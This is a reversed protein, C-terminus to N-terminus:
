YPRTPESIHILSLIVGWWSPNARSNRGILTGLTVVHGQGDPAKVLATASASEVGTLKYTDVEHLQLPGLPGGDHSVVVEKQIFSRFPDRKGISNYSYKVEEEEELTPEVVREQDADVPVVPGKEAPGGSDGLLCGGLLLLAAPLLVVGLNLRLMKM